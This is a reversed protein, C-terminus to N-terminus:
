PGGGQGAGGTSARGRRLLWVGLLITIARQLLLDATALLVSAALPHGLSTLVVAMALEPQGAAQPLLRVQSFVGAAFAAAGADLLTVPLAFAHALLALSLATCSWIAYGVLSTAIVSAIPIAGLGGGVRSAATLLPRLPLVMAWDRGSCRLEVQALEHLLSRSWRGLPHHSQWHRGGQIAALLLSWLLTSALVTIAAAAATWALAAGAEPQLRALGFLVAFGILGIAFGTIKEWLLCLLVPTLDTGDRGQIRSIRVVEGVRVPLLENMLRGHAVDEIAAGLPQELGAVRAIQQWRVARLLTCSILVAACGLVTGPHSILQTLSSPDHALLAALVALPLLRVLVLLWRKPRRERRLRWAAQLYASLFSVLDTKSAGARREESVIPWEQLTMGRAQLAAALTLMGEGKGRMLSALDLGELRTREVLFFSSFCDRLPVGSVRAVLGSALESMLRRILSYPTDGGPVFRSGVLLCGERRAQFLAAADSARHQGDANLALIWDGRAQSLGEGIAASFGESQQQLCRLSSALGASDPADQLGQNWDEELAAITGDDSADIVLVELGLPVQDGEPGPDLSTDLSAFAQRLQRVLAPASQRENRTPLVLTLLPKLRSPDDAM